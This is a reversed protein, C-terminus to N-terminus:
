SHRTQIIHLVVACVALCPICAARLSLCRAARQLAEGSRRFFFIRELEGAIRTTSFLLEVGDTQAADKLSAFPEGCEQVDFAAIQQVLEYGKEMQEAWYERASLKSVPEM